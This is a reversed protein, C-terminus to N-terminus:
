LRTETKSKPQRIVYAYVPFHDSYGNTFRGGTFSRFPYGKYRGKQNILFPPQFVAAKWYRWSHNDPKLWYHTMYIQDLMHWRDRYSSSGVGNKFLQEMPNFLQGQNLAQKKDGTTQLVIKFAEDTPDDNFDGMSLIKATPELRQISDIIRKNLKAAKVRYPASRAQGGSRSPWHNVVVHIREGELFGTVVLQDRTYDRERKNNYLYLVHKRFHEPVFFSKRYLLAVDIGREDPSEFHIIGYNYAQLSPQRVLDEIVKRNEVECLGVLVPPNQAVSQGIQQIVRATNTLKKQYISETWRDKGNPTRDDDDTTPDDIADFLNEVNYFAITHLEYPTQAWLAHGFFLLLILMFSPFM